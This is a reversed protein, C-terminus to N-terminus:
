VPWFSQFAFSCFSTLSLESNERGRVLVAILTGVFFILTPALNRWNTSKMKRRKRGIVRIKGFKM